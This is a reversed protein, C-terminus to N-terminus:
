MLRLVDTGVESTRGGVGDVETEMPLDVLGVDLETSVPSNNEDYELVTIILLWLCNSCFLETLSSVKMVENADSKEM